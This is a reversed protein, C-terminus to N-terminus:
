DIVRGYLEQGKVSSHLDVVLALSIYVNSHVDRVCRIIM